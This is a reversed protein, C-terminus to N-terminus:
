KKIRNGNGGTVRQAKQGKSFYKFYFKEFLTELLCSHKQRPLLSQFFINLHVSTIEPAPLDNQKRIRKIENSESCVICWGFMDINESLCASIGVKPIRLGSVWLNKQKEPPLKADNKCPNTIVARTIRYCTIIDRVM